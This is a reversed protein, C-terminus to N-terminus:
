ASCPLSKGARGTVQWWAPVRILWLGMNAIFFSMFIGDLDEDEFFLVLASGRLLSVQACIAKPRNASRM